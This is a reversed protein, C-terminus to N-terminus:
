MFGPVVPRNTCRCNILQGPLVFAKEDADWMGKAVDYKKGNMAVHSPRPTKGGHSHMWLAETIGIELQRARTLAATAKQNQDRAIFAARRKTVGHQHQLDKALQALDRGTQVSRAVMGEVNSLYQQPISKILGVQQSITAQLVDNQARSMTWDITFGGRKLASKLAADSRQGVATAFYDALGKAAIDFRKQWRRTLKKVAERLIFAPSADQAIEPENARYAAKLWYLVSNHMEDILAVLRKRYEAEVGANAHM